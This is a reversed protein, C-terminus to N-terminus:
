FIDKRQKKFLYYESARVQATRNLMRVFEEACLEGMIKNITIRASGVIVGLEYQTYKTKLNFWQNDILVSDDVSTLFLKKLRDKCSYFSLNEIEYRLSLIKYSYCQMVMIRFVENNSMLMYYDAKSIKHCFVDTEAQSFIGTKERTICAIDGFLWGANLFYLIKEVGDSNCMFHKTTGKSIYFVYDVKDGPELFITKAPIFMPIGIEGIISDLEEDFINPLNSSFQDIQM